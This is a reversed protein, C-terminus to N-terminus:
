SFAGGFTAGPCNAMGNLGLVASVSAIKNTTVTTSTRSAMTFASTMVQAVDTSERFGRPTALTSPAVVSWSLRPTDAARRIGATGPAMTPIGSPSRKTVAVLWPECAM